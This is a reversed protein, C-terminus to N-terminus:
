GDTDCRQEWLVAHLQIMTFVVMLNGCLISINTEICYVIKKLQPAILNGLEFELQKFTNTNPPSPVTLRSM